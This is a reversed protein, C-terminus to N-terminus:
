EASPEGEFVAAIEALAAEEKESITHIGLFGGAAKAIARANRTVGTRLMEFHEKSATTKLSAVFEKWAAFLSEPPAQELWSQLLVHGPSNSPCRHDEAARLIAAKEATEMRRDAWAVRVLPVMTLAALAEVNVHNQVLVDLVKPDQIGCISALENREKEANLKARLEAALKSDVHRFFENELAQRRHEFGSGSEM